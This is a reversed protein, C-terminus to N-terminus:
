ALERELHRVIRDAADGQGFPSPAPIPGDWPPESWARVLESAVADRTRGVLRNRGDLAEPRETRERAVLVTKGLSPGEEQLGGSDTLVFRASALAGAFAVYGLPKALTVRPHRDFARAATAVVNPNPHVPWYIRADPTRELFTTLGALIEDLAGGFSERRHLTVLVTDPELQMSSRGRAWLLADVVTNGTVLVCAPDIREALLQERAVETPAFCYRSIRDVLQRNAEEPFPNDHDYTRLGAEVHGVPIKLHYAALSAGLVTTTDGQVLLCTPPQAVLLGHLREVVRALVENPSQAHTMVALEHDPKLELSVLVEDMLERHQGTSVLVPELTACAQLARVVPAMKIAEPRTGVVVVVRKM